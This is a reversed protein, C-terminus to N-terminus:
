INNYSLGEAQFVEELGVWPSARPQYLGSRQESLMIVSRISEGQPGTILAVSPIIGAWPMERPLNLFFIEPQLGSNYSWKKQRRVGWEV